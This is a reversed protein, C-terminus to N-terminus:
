DVNRTQRALERRHCTGRRSFCIVKSSGRTADVRGNLQWIEREHVLVGSAGADPLSGTWNKKLVMKLFLLFLFPLDAM